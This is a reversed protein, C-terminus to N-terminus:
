LALEAEGHRRCLLLWDALFRNSQHKEDAHRMAKNPQPYNAALRSVGQTEIVEAMRADHYLRVVLRPQLYDAVSKQQLEIRVDSTYRSETVLSLSYCGSAGIRVRCPEERNDPMLRVLQAYNMEALRHLGAVDVVYRRQSRSVASNM